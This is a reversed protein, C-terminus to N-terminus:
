FFQKIGICILLIDPMYRFVQIWRYRAFRLVLTMGIFLSKLKLVEHDM